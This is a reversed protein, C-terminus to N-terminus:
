HLMRCTKQLAPRPRGLSERVAWALAQGVVLGRQIPPVRRFPVPWICRNSLCPQVRSRGGSSPDRSEEVFKHNVVGAFRQDRSTCPYNIEASKRSFRASRLFIARRKYPPGKSLIAPSLNGVCYTAPYRRKERPPGVRHLTLGRKYSIFDGITELLSKGSWSTLVVNYYYARSNEKTM